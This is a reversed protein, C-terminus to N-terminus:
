IHVFDEDETYLEKLSKFSTFETILTVLLTARKSLADAVKNQQRFKHKIVFTFKQMYRVSRVHMKSM